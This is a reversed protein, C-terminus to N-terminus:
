NKTAELLEKIIKKDEEPYSEWKLILNNKELSDSELNFLEIGKLSKILKWNKKRVAFQARDNFIFKDLVSGDLQDFSTVEGGLSLDFTGLESIISRENYRNEDGILDFFNVGLYSEPVKNGFINLVTPGMDILSVPASVRKGAFANDPFKILMPIKVFEEYVHAGHYFFGHEDFGEGHDSTIIIISSDLVEQSLSGVFGKILDDFEKVEQDYRRVFKEKQNNSQFKNEKVREIEEHSVDGEYVDPEGFLHQYQKQPTYPDHVTWDHIMMFFPKKNNRETLWQGASIFRAEGSGGLVEKPEFVNAVSEKILQGTDVAGKIEVGQMRLVDVFTNPDKKSALDKMLIQSPYQSRFMSAFSPMTWSATSSASDFIVGNNEFYSKIFPTTEREYGYVSMHQASLTDSVILIVNCQRGGCRLSTNHTFLNDNKIVLCVVVILIVAFLITVRKNSLFNMQVVIYEAYSQCM